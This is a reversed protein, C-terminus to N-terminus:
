EAPIDDASIKAASEFRTYTKLFTLHVDGTPGNRQKAILLNVPLADQETSPGEDDDGSNPKYLLGILDADQEIAGSERLDSMRPKRNKDKELERNLQALVIVPVNLEKALAKVGNSIDAIEQQRNEARRATSHLLQLYDIVFLKVGYQQWMRRAKARLQLISLGATDDIYLPAAALKGAASTIKPFDRESFFGERVNRLNVRARSCLMRLVLSESSMELSFVGVPLKQDISVSEAINMALSTNHVCIDNAVFNHTHPITLDYVQKRGLPEISVIRDWFVDSDALQELESSRLAGAFQKLRARSLDRKDVHVNTWGAVGARRALAAWSENGKIEAIRRWIARPILDVNTQKRKAALQSGVRQIAAEKSFIGIERIFIRLADSDTIELQWATRRSGKYLVSRERVSSIIGFRLLLHQVQRIMRRSVSSYGIQGQGSVQISAWGDTAFLRNLFLAMSDRELKFIFKPIFKTHADCGLVGLERLWLALSNLRNQATAHIGDPMLTNERTELFACLKTWHKEDPVCHGKQWECVSVPSAGIALAVKRASLRRSSIAERLASAFTTRRNPTSADRVIRLSTARTGNSDFERVEVAGFERAAEAFDDRVLRNTNTFTPSSHTLCGDGLLYALLKVECERARDAGFVPLLRPVAVADGVRLDGLPKWGAVTLFPHTLTTEIERGLRTRVKFVPKKGDDVFASPKAVGFKWDSKLTLLQGARAQYVEEITAISGDSLLLESNATLCKGMSPRAAIVIMEGGHMGTTMKDLDPFGTAIGTLMGQNEHYQELREIAKHVVDKITLTQAEVREESIRLVDREVEDLLADVEGEHEYVRGVVDTCTAIMKRLIYKEKVINVYFSLNAASPVTDPLTALYAIGGVNELQHKDKLRQQVTIVDIAEKRDYMESLLEFIVQHRLDYFVTPGTKFKEICYGMCEHPSLFVCGLVGQEAEPSHPPLRDVSSVARADTSSKKRRGKRLDASSSGAEPNVSDLMLFYSLDFCRAPCLITKLFLACAIRL